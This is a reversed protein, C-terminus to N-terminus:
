PAGPDPAPEPFEHLRTRRLLGEAREGPVALFKGSATALVTDGDAAILEAACAWLRGRNAEVRARVLLPAGIPVPARYRVTAEATMTFAGRGFAAYWMADDCLALVIGGHLVDAFGQFSPTPAWRAEAAGAGEEVSFRLRMGVPNDQGCVICHRSGLIRPM